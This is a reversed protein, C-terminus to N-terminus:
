RAGDKWGSRVLATYCLRYSSSFELSVVQMRVVM